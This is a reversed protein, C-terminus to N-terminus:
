TRSAANRGRGLASWKNVDVFHDSLRQGGNTCSSKAKDLVAGFNRWEAYGLLLQLDRAFWYEIGQEKRAIAELRGLLPRRDTGEEDFL